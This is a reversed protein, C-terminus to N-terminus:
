IGIRKKVEEVIDIQHRNNDWFFDMLESYKDQPIHCDEKDKIIQVLQDFDYARRGVYYKDYESLKFSGKMYEEFDYVFLIVEKNMTLFDTYISSYDTILCDMFPLITYIDTTSPYNYINKYSSIFNLDLNTSPHLKLVFLSNTEELVRNLKDWDFKAREVFNTGDNRWTPMYVYVRDFQKMVNLFDMTEKPEYKKIFQLASDKGEILFKSRPFVGVICDDEPIDLMEAFFDKKQITSPTLCLDPKRFMLNYSDIKFHFNTRMEEKDKLHYRRCFYEPAQWRVRKVSSGHWLNLYFAGASFVPNINSVTHSTVYVKSTLAHFFGKLSNKMCAEMGQRRILDREKRSQAFWIARIEPHNENTWYFLFKPNDRFGGLCGYAWKHKNRPVYKIVYQSYYGITKIILEFTKKVGM